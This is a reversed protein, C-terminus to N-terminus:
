LPLREDPTDLTDDLPESDDQEVLRRRTSVIRWAVGAGILMLAGPAAWLWANRWNLPPRFLIFEGYRSAMYDRVQQDSKGELL